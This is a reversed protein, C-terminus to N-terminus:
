RYNRLLMIEGENSNSSKPVEYDATLNRRKQNTTQTRKEFEKPHGVVCVPKKEKRDINKRFYNM